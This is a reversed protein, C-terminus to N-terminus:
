TTFHDDRCATLVIRDFVARHETRKGTSHCRDFVASHKSKRRECYQLADLEEQRDEEAKM